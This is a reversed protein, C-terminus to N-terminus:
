KRTIKETKCDYSIFYDGKPLSMCEVEIGRGRKVIQGFSNYLEFNTEATFSIKRSKKDYRMAVPEVDSQVDCNQSKRLDGDFSKQVVRFRNSGSTLQVQFNYNNKSPTGNGMVEGVSVWKNWKFQQITFAIKGQENLTEWSLNGSRTCEIRQCEFSPSPELAGPNLIRPLCGDKHKIIVTVPDGVKFKYLSLDIEFAQTNVDDSSVLSNVTIQYICYGVGDPASANVVFINKKQYRGEIVINGASSEVVDMSLLLLFLLRLITNCACRNKVVFENQGTPQGVPL